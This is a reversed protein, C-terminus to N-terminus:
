KVVSDIAWAICHRIPRFPRPKIQIEVGVSNVQLSQPFVPFVDPYSTLPGFIQVSIERILLKIILNEAAIPSDTQRIEPLCCLSTQQFCDRSSILLQVLIHLCIVSRRLRVKCLAAQHTCRNKVAVAVASQEGSIALFIYDPLIFHHTYRAPRICAAKVTVVRIPVGFCILWPQGTRGATQRV